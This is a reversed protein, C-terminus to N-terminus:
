RAVTLRRARAGDATALRVVYVGAALRAADLTAEHHGAAVDGEALVAVERGLGDIVSVRATGAEALTYRVLARGVTPNPSPALLATVLPATGTEGAVVGTVVFRAVSATVQVTGTVGPPLDLATFLGSCAGSCTVVDFGAGVAPAFGGVFRVRLAGGLTGAGAVALQDHQTGPTAGGIEVDLVGEAAPAYPGSWALRGTSPGAAAGPRVTARNTLARGADDFVTGTGTVVSGASLTRSDVLSLTCAPCVVYSGADTGGPGNFGQLALGGGVLEVTGNNDFFSQFVSEGAGSRRLVGGTDNVFRGGFFIASGGPVSASLDLTGRNVFASGANDNSFATTGAWTGTGELVFQRQQPLSRSGSTGALTLTAGPAVRTTGTGTMTGTAWTMSGTVTLTGSGGLTGQDFAFSTVTANANLTLTGGGPLGMDLTPVALVGNFATAGASVRLTGAGTVSGTAAVTRSDGFDLLASAAVTYAGADTGGPGNFGRLSLTGATVEVTGNNDFGSSFISPTAGNKRVVGGPANVFRGAFFVASGDPISASLAITGRNVFASGANDNSFRAQGAWACTGELVLQRQDTLSFSRDTGLNLTAGAAVRTTGTGRMAGGNWTLAGTVTLTGSGTLTGFGSADFVFNQVSAATNLTLTSNTSLVATDAPGPAHACSWNSATTWDGAGGGTWTCTDAAAPRALLALLLLASATRMTSRFPDDPLDSHQAPGHWTKANEPTSHGPRGGPKIRRAGVAATGIDGSEWGADRDAGVVAVAAARTAVAGVMPAGTSLAGASLAGASLAGASM